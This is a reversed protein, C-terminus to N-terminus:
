FLFVSYVFISNPSDSESAPVARPPERAMVARPPCLPELREGRRIGPGKAIEKGPQTGM